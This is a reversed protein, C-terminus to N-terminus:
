AGHQGFNPLGAIARRAQDLVRDLPETADIDVIPAGGFDLRALDNIKTELSTARHDPKRAIATALDVKLRIV